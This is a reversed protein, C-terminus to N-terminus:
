LSSFTKCSKVTDFTFRCREDRAFVLDKQKVRSYRAYDGRKGPLEGFLQECLDPNPFEGYKVDESRNRELGLSKRTDSSATSKASDESNAQGGQEVIEAVEDDSRRLRPRNRSSRETNREEVEGVEVNGDDSDPYVSSSRSSSEVRRPLQHNRIRTNRRTSRQETNSGSKQYTEPRKGKRDVQDKTVPTDVLSLLRVSLYNFGKLNTSLEALAKLLVENCEQGLGSPSHAAETTAATPVVPQNDEQGTPRPADDILATAVVVAEPEVQGFETPSFATDAPATTAVAGENGEHSRKTPSSTRDSATPDTTAM